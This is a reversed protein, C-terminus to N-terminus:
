LLDILFSIFSILWVIFVALFIIMGVNMIAVRKQISTKKLFLEVLINGGSSSPFPFLNIAAFKTAFIAFAIFMSEPLTDLFFYSIYLKGREFPSLFGEMIQFFGKYVEDLAVLPGLILAAILIITLPMSLLIVIRTLKSRSLVDKEYDYYNISGGTPIWGLDIKLNGLTFDFITSGYFLQIKDVKIKYYMCALYGGLLHFITTLGFFIFLFLIFFYIQNM